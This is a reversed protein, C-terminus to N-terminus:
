DAFTIKSLDRKSHVIHIIVLEDESAMRYFIIYEGETVSRYGTRIEDRKRGVASFTLLDHCRRRLRQVFAIAADPNDEAIFDGIEELDADADPSFTLRIM